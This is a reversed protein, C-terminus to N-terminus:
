TSLLCRTGTNAIKQRADGMITITVSSQLVQDTPIPELLLKRPTLLQPLLNMYTTIQHLLMQRARVERRVMRVKAVRRVQVKEVKPPTRVKGIEAEQAHDQDKDGQVERVPANYGGEDVVEEIPAANKGGYSNLHRLTNERNKDETKDAFYRKVATCIYETNYEPGHRGQGWRNKERKWHKMDVELIKSKMLM